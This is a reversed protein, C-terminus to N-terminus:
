LLSEFFIVTALALHGQNQSPLEKDKFHGYGLSFSRPKPFAIRAEYFALIATASAGRITCPKNLTHNSADFTSTNTSWAGNFVFEVM